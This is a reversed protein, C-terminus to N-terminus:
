FTFPVTKANTMMSNTHMKSHNTKHRALSCAYKKKTDGFTTDTHRATKGFLTESTEHQNEM